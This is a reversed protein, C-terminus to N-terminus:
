NPVSPLVYGVGRAASLFVFGYDGTHTTPNGQADLNYIGLEMKKLKQAQNSFTLDFAGSVETAETLAGGLLVNSGVKRTGNIAGTVTSGTIAAIQSDLSEFKAKTVDDLKIATVIVGGDVKVRLRDGHTIAGTGVASGVPLGTVTMVNSWEATSFAIEYVGDPANVPMISALTASADAEYVHPIIDSVTTDRLAAVANALATTLNTEVTNINGQLTTDGAIRDTVEQALADTVTTIAAERAATEASVQADVYSKFAQRELKNNLVAYYIQAEAQDTTEYEFGVDLLGATEAALIDALTGFYKHQTFKASRNLAM